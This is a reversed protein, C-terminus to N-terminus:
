NAFKKAEKLDRSGSPEKVFHHGPFGLHSPPAQTQDRRGSTPALDTGPEATGSSTPQRPTPDQECGPSSRCSNAQLSSLFLPHHSTPSVRRTM